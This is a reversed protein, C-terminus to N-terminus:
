WISGQPQTKAAPGRPEVDLDGGSLEPHSGILADPREGVQFALRDRGGFFRSRMNKEATGQAGVADIGASTSTRLLLM